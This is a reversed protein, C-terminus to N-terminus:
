SPPQEQQSITLRLERTFVRDAKSVTLRLDWLGARPRKLTLEYRGGGLSRLRERRLDQGRAVAFSESEIAAGDVPRGDADQVAVQVTVNGQADTQQELARCVWGLRDNQARQAIVEDYNSAKKYYDKEVSFGPDDVAVAVMWLWGSVSVVLLGLPFLMWFTSNARSASRSASASGDVTRSNLSSTASSKNQNM